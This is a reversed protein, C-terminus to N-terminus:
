IYSVNTLKRKGTPQHFVNIVNPQRRREYADLAFLGYILMQVFFANCAFIFSFHWSMQDSSSLHHIDICDVGIDISIYTDKEDLLLCQVVNMKRTTVGFM